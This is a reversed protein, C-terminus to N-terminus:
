IVGRLDALTRRCPRWLTSCFQPLHNPQRNVDGLWYNPKRKSAQSRLTCPTRRWISREPGLSQATISTQLLERGATTRACGDVTGSTSARHRGFWGQIPRVLFLRGPPTVEVIDWHMFKKGESWRRFRLLSQTSPVFRPCPAFDIGVNQSM